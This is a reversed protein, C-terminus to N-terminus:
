RPVRVDHENFAGKEAAPHCAACNSPSHISPRRWASPAIEGHKHLFRSSRTIRNEPPPTAARKGSAANAELWAGIAQATAEDLSADSGFHAALRGMLARWSAAPLLRPPYPVHCSGCERVYQPLAPLDRAAREKAHVSTAAMTAFALAAWWSPPQM